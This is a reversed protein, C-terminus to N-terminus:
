SAEDCFIVREQFFSFININFEHNIWWCNMTSSNHILSMPRHIALRGLCCSPVGCLVVPLLLPAIKTLPLRHDMSRSWVQCLWYAVQGRTDFGKEPKWVNLSEWNELLSETPPSQCSFPQHFGADNPDGSRLTNGIDLRWSCLWSGTKELLPCSNKWFRLCRPDFAIELEPSFWFGFFPTPTVM